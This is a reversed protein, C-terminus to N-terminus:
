NPRFFSNSAFPRNPPLTKLFGALYMQTIKSFPARETNAQVRADGTNLSPYGFFFGPPRPTMRPTLM